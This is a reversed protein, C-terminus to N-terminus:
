KQARIVVRFTELGFPGGALNDYLRVDPFGAQRFRDKLEQGSYITHHVTYTRTAGNRIFIYQNRVRTWDDYVEHRRVLVTGDTLTESQTPVFRRALGEKSAVQLICVGGPKLSCYINNLVRLDDRKDEFYGFSSYLNLVLDYARPRVFARMDAEVWEVDAEEAAAREKAKELLFPTLDVGTTRIGRRALVVSHRGVGCCLDMASEVPIDALALAQDVEQEAAEFCGAPFIVPYAEAWFSGDEFWEAM